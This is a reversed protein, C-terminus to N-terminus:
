LILIYNAFLAILIHLLFMVVFYAVEFVVSAPMICVIVVISYVLVCIVLLCYIVFTLYYCSSRLLHYLM